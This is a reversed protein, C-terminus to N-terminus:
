PMSDNRVLELILMPCLPSWDVPQILGALNAMHSLATALLAPYKRELGTHWLSLRGAPYAAIRSILEPPALGALASPSMIALNHTKSIEPDSYNQLWGYIGSFNPVSMLALGGPKLLLLHRHVIERPDDFHEILGDSYVVDFSRPAFTNAFVDERRLDADIHLADFLRRAQAFGVESYDIGAVKAQLIKAVWALMKGPAFGIELVHMGPKIRPRLLRQLNKVSVIVKSPLCLRIKKQRATDWYSQTTKM